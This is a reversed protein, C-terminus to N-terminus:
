ETVADIKPATAGLSALEPKLSGEARAQQLDLLRRQYEPLKKGGVSEVFESLPIEKLLERKIADTTDQQVKGLKGLISAGLAAKVVKTKMNPLYKSSGKKQKASNRRREARNGGFTQLAQRRVADAMSEGADGPTGTPGQAHYQNLHVDSKHCPQEDIHALVSSNWREQNLDATQETENDISMMPIEKIPINKSLELLNQISKRNADRDTPSMRIGGVGDGLDILEHLHSSYQKVSSLHFPEKSCVIVPTISM